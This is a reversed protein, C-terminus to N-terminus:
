GQEQWKRICARKRQMHGNFDTYIYIYIDLVLIYSCGCWHGKGVIDKVLNINAM